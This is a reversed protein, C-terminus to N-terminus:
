EGTVAPSQHPVATKWKAPMLTRGIAESLAGWSTEKAFALTRYSRIYRDWSVPDHPLPLQIALGRCGGFGQTHGEVILPSEPGFKTTIFEANDPSMRAVRRVRSVGGRPGLHQYELDTIGLAGADFEPFKATYYGKRDPGTLPTVITNRQMYPRSGAPRMSDPPILAYGNVGWVVSGPKKFRVRFDKFTSAHPTIGPHGLVDRVRQAASVIASATTNGTLGACFGDLDQHGEYEPAEERSRRYAEASAALDAALAKGLADTAAFLPELRDCDFAALALNMTDRRDWYKQDAVWEGLHRVFRRAFEEGAIKPNKALEELCGKWAWGGWGISESVLLVKAYPKLAHVVEITGMDCAHFSLVDFRADPRGTVTRLTATADAVAATLQEVTFHSEHDEDSGFGWMAGGGHNELALWYRRAPFLPLAWRAFAQFTAPTGSDVQGLQALVPSTIRDDDGDKKIYYRRSGHWNRDDADHDKSRALQRVVHMSRTSGVAEMLNTQALGSGELNSAMAAYSLVTWEKAPRKWDGAFLATSLKALAAPGIGPIGDLDTLADFAGVKQRRAVIKKALAVDIGGVKALEAATATNVDARFPQGAASAPDAVSTLAGADLLNKFHYGGMSSALREIQRQLARPDREREVFARLRADFAEIIKSDVHGREFKLRARLQKALPLFAADEPAPRAEMASVMAELADPAGSALAQAVLDVAETVRADLRDALAASQNALTSADVGRGALDKAVAPTALAREVFARQFFADSLEAILPVVRTALPSPPASALEAQVPGAVLVALVVFFRFFRM